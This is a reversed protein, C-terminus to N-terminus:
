IHEFGFHKNIKDQMIADALVSMGFVSLGLIILQFNPSKDNLVSNLDGAMKYEYYIHYIGCTLISFLFWHWFSYKAQKLMYNVAKMQRNQVMLNYFGCTVVTVLIDFLVSSVFDSKVSGEEKTESM